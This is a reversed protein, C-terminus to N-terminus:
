WLDLTVTQPPLPPMPHSQPLWSQDATSLACGPRCASCHSGDEHEGRQECHASTSAPPKAPPLSTDVGRVNGRVSPYNPQRPLRVIRSTSLLVAGNIHLHKKEKQANNAKRGGKQLDFFALSGVGNLLELIYVFMVKKVVQVPHPVLAVTCKVLHSHYQPTFEVWLFNRDEAKQASTVNAV